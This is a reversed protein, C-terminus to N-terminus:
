AEPTENEPSPFLGAAFAISLMESLSRVELKEMLKARYIEVTRPSIDLEFAIAKNSQGHILGRLVEFQRSSLQALKAQATAIRDTEAGIRQLRAQAADIAGLLLSHHFPKEIFDLAGAKMAQVASNIDGQATMMIVAFQSSLPSLRGLVGMGSLGPMNLDLLVCGPALTELADLFMEGSAFSRTLLDSRLNLLQTLSSRVSPDDDVIYLNIAM